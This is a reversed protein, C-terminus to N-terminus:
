ANSEKEKPKLTSRINIFKSLINFWYDSGYAIAFGTILWGLWSVPHKVKQWVDHMLEKFITQWGADSQFEWGIPLDLSNAKKYADKITNMDQKLDHNVSITDAGNNATNEAYEKQYEIATAVVRDRLVKDKYLDKVLQISNVNFLIAVVIGVVQSRRIIKRKYWSAVVKMYEDYWQAINDQLKNIDKDNVNLCFNSLLIKLDSHHLSDVANKYDKLIDEPTRLAIQPPTVDFTGTGPILKFEPLLQQSSIVSVLADAFVKSQIYDPLSQKNEKLSDILPHTYLINAFDKNLPDNLVTRIGDLLVYARSRRWHQIMEITASVIISFLLFIFVMSLAIDIIPPM